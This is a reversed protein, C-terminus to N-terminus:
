VSGFLVTKLQQASEEWTLWPMAMSTPHEGADFLALWAKIAQGLEDASLGHFYFAHEGAVERFVPLDRIIM